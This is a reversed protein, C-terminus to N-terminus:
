MAATPWDKRDGQWLHVGRPQVRTQNPWVHDWVEPTEGNTEREREREGELARVSESVQACQLVVDDRRGPQKVASTVLHRVLAAWLWSKSWAVETKGHRFIRRQIENKGIRKNSLPIKKNATKTITKSHIPMVGFVHCSTVNGNGKLFHRKSM